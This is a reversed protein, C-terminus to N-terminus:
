ESVSRALGAALTVAGVFLISNIPTGRRPHLRTFWEPLLRDWGAVMPLRASGTFNVSSQAVRVVTITMIVIPMLAAILGFPKSGLALAQPIPGILDVDAPRVFALVSGTGLIFMLGIIPAAIAVSRGIVREPNRCEGAVIAVYEFGGLAGFGM